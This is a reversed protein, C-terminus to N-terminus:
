RRSHVTTIITQGFTAILNFADLLKGAYFEHM